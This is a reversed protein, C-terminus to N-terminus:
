CKKKAECKRARNRTHFVAQMNKHCTSIELSYKGMFDFRCLGPVREAIESYMASFQIFSGM